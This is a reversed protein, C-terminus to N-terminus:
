KLIYYVTNGTRSFVAGHNITVLWAAREAATQSDFGRGVFYKQIQSETWEHRYEAAENGINQMIQAFATNDFICWIYDDDTLTGVGLSAELGTNKFETYTSIDTYVIYTEEESGNQCGVLFIAVFFIELFIFKKM